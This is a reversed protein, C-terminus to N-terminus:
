RTSQLVRHDHVDLRRRDNALRFDARGLRHDIAGGLPEIELRRAQDSIRAVARALHDAPEHVLAPDLRV